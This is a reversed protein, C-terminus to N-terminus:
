PQDSDPLSESDVSSGFLEDEAEGAFVHLGLRRSIEECVKTGRVSSGHEDLGPSFVAIGLKGPVVAMIGGSVGSKAPIGVRYAWQGAFTYMGCMHMVSLVDRVHNPLIAQEGTTPNVGGNALTAGMLALERTNVEVSCQRLYMTLNEDVDHSIMGFSRMLYSLARNRDATELEGALIDENVRLDPNGAYRRLSALIYELDAETDGTRVLDTTVLAGANVMPNHPRHNQEDFVVSISNFVDGSPEVGVRALVRERGHLDLAMGHVFVKSISQLAFRYDHDGACRVEGDLTALCIAFREQDPDPKIPKHYGFGPTYYSTVEDAFQSLHRRYLEELQSEVRESQEVPLNMSM